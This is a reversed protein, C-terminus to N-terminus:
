KLWKFDNSRLKNVTEETNIAELQYEYLVAHWMEHILTQKQRAIDPETSISLECATYDCWGYTTNAERPVVAYDIGNIDLSTPLKM